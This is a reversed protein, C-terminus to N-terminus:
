AAKQAPEDDVQGNHLELYDAMRRLLSPDDKVQGLTRNCRDCLWGRFNGSNHCHDFRVIAVESCLECKEPRPRGAIEDKKQKERRGFRQLRERQKEPNASRWRAQALRDAARVEELHIERYKKAARRGVEPKKKRYRRAEETRCGPNNGRWLKVRAYNEAPDAALHRLRLCEVCGGSSVYREAVHGHKCPKGTFFRSQDAILASKTDVAMMLVGNDEIPEYREM